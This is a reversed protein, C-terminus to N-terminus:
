RATAQRAQQIAEHVFFFLSTPQAPEYAENFSGENHVVTGQGASNVVPVDAAYYIVFTPKNPHRWDWVPDSIVSRGQQAPVRVSAAGSQNAAEDVSIGLANALSRRTANIGVIVVGGRLQQRLWPQPVAALASENIWISQPRSTAVVAQLEDLRRVVVIGNADLQSSAVNLRLSAPTNAPELYVALPASAAAQRAHALLALSLFLALILAGGRTLLVRRVSTTQRHFLGM